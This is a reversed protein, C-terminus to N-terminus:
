VILAWFVFYNLDLLGWLGTSNEKREKGWLGVEDDAKCWMAFLPFYRKKKIKKLEVKLIM